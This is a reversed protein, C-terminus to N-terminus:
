DKIFEALTITVLSRESKWKRLFLAIVALIIRADFVKIYGNIDYFRGYALLYIIINVMVGAFLGALMFPKENDDRECMKYYEYLSLLSIIVAGILVPISFFCDTFIMFVYVPLAIAASLIRMITARKVDSM